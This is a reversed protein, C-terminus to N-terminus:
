KYQSLYVMGLSFVLSTGSSKHRLVLREGEGPGWGYLRWGAWVCGHGKNRGRGDQLTGVVVLGHSERPWRPEGDRVDAKKM